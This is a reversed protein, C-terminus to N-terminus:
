TARTTLHSPLWGVVVQQEDDHWFFYCRFCHRTERANGKKLHMELLHKRDGYDITYEEAHEGYRSGSFTPTLEIGLEACRSGFQQKRLPGGDRRMPVYYDRLLLMAQYVLNTDYYDSKKVERYARNLVIVVGSLERACWEEFVDLTEPVSANFAEKDATEEM